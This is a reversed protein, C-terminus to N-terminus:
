EISEEEDAVLEEGVHLTIAGKELEIEVTSGLLAAAHCESMLPNYKVTVNHNCLAIEDEGAPDVTSPNLKIRKMKATPKSLDVDKNWVFPPIYSDDVKLNSKEDEWPTTLAVCVEDELLGADMVWHNLWINGADMVWHNLWINVLLTYRKRDDCITKQRKAAPEKIEESSNNNNIRGPFYLAPAGHLFRGDFVTHKGMKPHSLWAKSIGKELTEKKMDDMPPSKQDFVLTPAGYDSLYTVTSLRPHLMINGTQEELEYDADFHLGVEDEEEEGENENGNWAKTIVNGGKTELGGGYTSLISSAAAATATNGEEADENMVLTWWNAGSQAPNFTGEKLHKTHEYFIKMAMAELACRPKKNAPLFYTQGASYTAGDPKDRATFVTECDERLTQLHGPNNFEITNESSWFDYRPIPEEGEVMPQFSSSSSSRNKSKKNSLGNPIYLAPFGDRIILDGEKGPGDTTTTTTTTAAAAAATTTAVDTYNSVSADDCKPDSSASSKDENDKKADSSTIM